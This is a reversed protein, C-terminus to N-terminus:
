KQSRQTKTATCPSERTAALPTSEKNHHAPKENHHSRKNCLMPELPAPKLLQPVHAWCNHCMPKTAGRCTPDEWVLSQVQTGQMPLHIRLWQAVPSTGFPGQKKLFCQGASCDQRSLVWGLGSTQHGLDAKGTPGTDGVKMNEKAGWHQQEMSWHSTIHGLALLSAVATFHSPLVQKSPQPDHGLGSDSCARPESLPNHEQNEGGTVYKRWM